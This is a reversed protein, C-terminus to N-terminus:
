PIPCAHLRNVPAKSLLASVDRVMENHDYKMWEPVTKVIDLSMQTVIDGDIRKDLNCNYKTLLHDFTFKYWDKEKNFDVLYELAVPDNAILLCRNLEKMNVDEFIKENKGKLYLTVILTQKKVIQPLHAFFWRKTQRKTNRLFKLIMIKLLVFWVMIQTYFKM